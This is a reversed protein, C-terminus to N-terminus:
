PHRRRRGQNREEMGFKDSLCVSPRVSLLPPAPSLPLAARGGRPARWRFAPATGGERMRRGDARQGDEERPSVFADMDVVTSQKARRDISIQSSISHLTGFRCYESNSSPSRSKVHISQNTISIGSIGCTSASFFRHEEWRGDYVRMVSRLRCNRQVHVCNALINTKNSFHPISFAATVENAVQWDNMEPAFLGILETRDFSMYEFNVCNIVYYFYLEKLDTHNHHAWAIVNVNFVCM